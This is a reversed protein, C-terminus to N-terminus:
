QQYSKGPQARGAPEIPPKPMKDAPANNAALREVSKIKMANTALEVKAQTLSVKQDSSYQLLALDRKLQLEEMRAEHENRTREAEAQVYVTDRDTDSADKKLDVQANITAVDHASQARIQAAQVQPAMPPPAKKREEKLAKIEEDSKAADIHHARYLQKVVKEWDTVLDVEPHNRMGLLQILMPAQQDRLSLISTGRPDVSFDGKIEPKPNYQMNWDYYRKLHPRTIQDDWRKVRSRVAINASDVIINTAGLTEPLDEKDGQFISPANSELDAFRLGLEIIAALDKQNNTIQFQAFAQRVDIDDDVTWIRKGGVERVDDEPELGAKMVITAGASDGANDMMARLAATVIRSPWMEMRPVGIGWCSGSVQTWQFFDYPLGGTDLMNLVIKVPRDNIFVACASITKADTHSCDCGLAELDDRALEGHYTWREYAAGMSATTQLQEQQDKKNLAVATRKPAEQLVAALQDVLYGPAGMLMRVDRPLVSDREWIFSGRQHDDGCSADPYIDWYNIRRSQPRFEEVVQMVHVTKGKADTMPVWAKRVSKIVDPGRMIGTGAKIADFAMRRCEANYNCETLQDDIEAEMGRMKEEAKESQHKALDAITLPQGDANPVPRGGSTIPERDSLAKVVEPVPTVKLGWNRDDVPMVGDTFRGHLTECKGRIINVEVKSRRPERNTIRLAEGTAYDIMSQKQGMELGDFLREDELWRREVGSAARGEIAEKRKGLLSAALAQLTAQVAGTNDTETM